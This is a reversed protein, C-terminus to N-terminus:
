GAAGPEDSGVEGHQQRFPMTAGYSGEVVQTPTAAFERENTQAFRPDGENVTVDAIRFVKGCDGCGIEDHFTRSFRRNV